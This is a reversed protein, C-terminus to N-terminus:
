AVIIHVKLGILESALTPLREVKGEAYRYELAINRGEVYGLEQLGQRFAGISDAASAPTGSVLLGIRYIKGAQQQAEAALCLALLLATVALSSLTRRM